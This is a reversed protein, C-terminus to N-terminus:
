AVLLAQGLRRTNMGEFNIGLDTAFNRMVEITNDLITWEGDLGTDLLVFSGNSMKRLETGDSLFKTSITEIVEEAIEFQSFGFGVARESAFKKLQKSCGFTKEFSTESKMIKNSNVARDVLNTCFVIWNSIKEACLSAGHQRFEVTGYKRYSDLNVARYRGGLESCLSNVQSLTGSGENDNICNDVLKWLNTNDGRNFGVGTYLDRAWQDGKSGGVRRSPALISDIYESQKAYLKVVNGIGKIYSDNVDVHVHIGCTKNISTNEMSELENMIKTLDKLGKKGKLIPSVIELGNRFSSHGHVSSDTIVKWYPVTAHNYSEGRFELNRFKNSLHNAITVQSVESVFEVEVGYTRNSKIITKM